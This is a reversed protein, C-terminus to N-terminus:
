ILSPAAPSLKAILLSPFLITMPDGPANSKLIPATLTKSCVSYLVFGLRLELGDAAGIPGESIGLIEAFGDAAVETLGDNDIFGDAPGESKGLTDILGDEARESIGLIEAFGVAAGESIGDSDNFGETAGESCGDLNCLLIGDKLLLGEKDGEKLLLGENDGDDTNSRTKWILVVCLSNPEALWHHRVTSYLPIELM